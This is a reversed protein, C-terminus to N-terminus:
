AAPRAGPTARLFACRVTFAATGLVSLGFVPFVLLAAREAIIAVHLWEEIGVMAAYGGVFLLIPLFAWGAYRCVGQLRTLTGGRLRRILSRWAWVQIGVCGMLYILFM